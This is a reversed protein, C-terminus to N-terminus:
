VAPNGSKEQYLMGFRFFHVQGCLIGILCLFQGIPRVFYWIARYYLLKKGNLPGVYRYVFYLWIPFKPICICIGDPMGPASCM